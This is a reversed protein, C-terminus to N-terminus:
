LRSFHRNATKYIYFAFLIVLLINFASLLLVALIFNLNNMFLGLLLGNIAISAFGGFVAILSAVSQKVVEVENTFNMKPFLLNIISYLFSIMILFSTILIMMALLDVISIKLSISFLLLSVLAFPLSLLINFAIKAHVIKIPAIPLSKLIWINKGELSLSIAPTITMALSFGILILVALQEGKIIGLEETISNLPTAYFFSIISLVVIIFLGFGVNIAYIPLNLLKKFEKIILTYGINRRDAQYGIKYKGTITVLSRQNTLISIRGVVYVFLMFLGVQSVVLYLLSLLKNRDVIDVFWKLPWYYQEIVVMQQAQNLLPNEDGYGGLSFNIIMFIFLLAFMFIIKFLQNKKFRSTIRAILYSIFSVIIVPIIPLLLFGIVYMLLNIFTIGTWYFYCFAIPFSIVFLTLYIFIMMVTIKVALVISPKIPLPALISYDRFQFLYSNARFLVLFLTFLTVYYFIYNLLLGTQNTQKLIGGIEFFLIGFSFWISIISFIILGGIAITKFRSKSPDFGFLRKLSLNEALLTKLLTFYIM